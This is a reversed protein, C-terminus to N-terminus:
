QNAQVFAFPTGAIFDIAFGIRENDRALVDADAGSRFLLSNQLGRVDDTLNSMDRDQSTVTASPSNLGTNKCDWTRNRCEVDKFFLFDNGNALLAYVQVRAAGSFYTLNHDATIRRWLHEAVDKVGFDSNKNFERALLNRFNKVEETRSGNWFGIAGFRSNRASNYQQIFVDDTNAAERGTQGGFVDHEPRFLIVNENRLKGFSPIVEAGVESNNVAVQNALIMSREISSLFKIRTSNHFADSIAYRRLFEILNIQGNTATSATWLSRIRTLKAPINSNCTTDCGDLRDNGSVINEDALGKVILIPLNNRSEPHNISDPSVAKIRDQANNGGISKGYITLEGPSHRSSGFQPFVPLFQGGGEVQIDTLAEATQRITRSEHQDFSEPNGSCTAQGPACTGSVGTGLIGFFLQHYERAFDENGRFAGNEFVNRRHNYQTAVAATLAANALVEHYPLGRALDNAILDYYIVMQQPDVNKDLNVALHYNTEFLAIRQRVPNLGRVKVANVWSNGPSNNWRNTTNFENSNRALNGSAFFNALRSLSADEPSVPSGGGEYPISLKDHVSWMGIIQVIAEGPTMDAWAKIQADTTGGGFAFSHLVKRVAAENWDADSIRGASSNYVGPDDTAGSANVAPINAGGGDSRSAIALILLAQLLSNDKPCDHFSRCELYNLLQCQSYFTFSLVLTLLFTIKKTQM